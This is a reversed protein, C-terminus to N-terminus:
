TRPENKSVSVKPLVKYCPTPHFKLEKAILDLHQIEAFMEPDKEKAAAKITEVANITTVARPYISKGNYQKKYVKCINCEKPYLWSVSTGSTPSSLRKSSRVTSTTHKKALILTFKKYCPTIHIGHISSDLVDPITMCQEKHHNSGGLNEREIKATRIRDENLPTIEKIDSCSDKNRYHIICCLKKDESSGMGSM